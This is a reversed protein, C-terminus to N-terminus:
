FYMNVGVVRLFISLHHVFKLCFGVLLLGLVVYPVIVKKVGYESVGGAAAVGDPPLVAVGPQTVYEEGLMSYGPQQVQISSVDQYGGYPQSGPGIASQPTVVAPAPAKQGAAAYAAGGAVAAAGAAGAIVPAAYAQAGGNKPTNNTYGSPPPAQSLGRQQLPVAASPSSPTTNNSSPATAPSKKVDNIHKMLARSQLPSAGLYALDEDTMLVLDRGVVRETKFRDKLAIFGVSDLWALVDDNTWTDMSKNDITNAVGM